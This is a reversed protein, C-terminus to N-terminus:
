QCTPGNNTLQCTGSNCDGLATILSCTDTIEVALLFPTPNLM